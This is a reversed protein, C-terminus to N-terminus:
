IESEDMIDELVMAGDELNVIIALGTKGVLKYHKCSPAHRFHRFSFDLQNQIKEIRDAIQEDLARNRRTLRQRNEEFDPLVETQRHPM